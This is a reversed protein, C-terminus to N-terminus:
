TYAGNEGSYGIFICGISRCASMCALAGGWRPHLCISMSMWVYSLWRFDWNSLRGFFASKVTGTINSIAQKPWSTLPVGESANTCMQMQNQILVAKLAIVSPFVGKPGQKHLWFNHKRITKAHKWIRIALIHQSFAVFGHLTKNQSFIVKYLKMGKKM